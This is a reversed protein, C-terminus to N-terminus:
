LGAWSMAHMTRLRHHLDPRSAQLEAMTSSPVVTIGGPKEVSYMPGHAGTRAVIIENRGVLRWIVPSQDTLPAQQAARPTPTCSICVVALSLLLLNRM